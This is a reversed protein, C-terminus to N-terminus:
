VDSRGGRLVKALKDYAEKATPSSNDYEAPKGDYNKILEGLYTYAKKLDEVGNKHKYRWLYKIITGVALADFGTLDSIVIKQVEYCSVGNKVYYNPKIDRM